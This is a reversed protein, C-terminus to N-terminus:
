KKRIVCLSETDPVYYVVRQFPHRPNARLVPKVRVQPLHFRMAAIHQQLYGPDHLAHPELFSGDEYYHKLVSRTNYVHSSTPRGFAGDGLGNNLLDEVFYLGDSKLLKFFYGLSVQQHEPLHSGDDIIVDFATVGSDKVFRDLDAISGQDAVFARMRDNNLYSGDNIDIGFIMANPFYDYWMRLSAGGGANRGQVIHAKWRDGTVGLGIELIALASERYRELYAEYVDTYNHASWTNSPGITGKDTGYQNALETLSKMMAVTVDLVLLTLCTPFATAFSKLRGM